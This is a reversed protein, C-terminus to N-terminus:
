DGGDGGDGHGKGKSKGKGHGKAHGPPVKGHRALGPPLQDPAPAQAPGPAPGPAPAGAAPTGPAAPAPPPTAPVAPTAPPAAAPIAPPVPAPIEVSARAQARQIEVMLTRAQAKNLRGRQTLVGVDSRLAGLAALTAPRSHSDAAVRAADLHANLRLAQSASLPPHGGSSGCGAGLAAAGLVAAALPSARRALNRHPAGFNLRAPARRKGISAFADRAVIRLQPRRGARWRPYPRFM